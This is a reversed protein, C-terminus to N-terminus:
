VFPIRLVLRFSCSLGAPAFRVKQQPSVNPAAAQYLTSVFAARLATITM